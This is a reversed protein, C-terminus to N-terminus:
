RGHWTGCLEEVGEQRDAANAVICNGKKRERTHDSASVLISKHQTSDVRKASL